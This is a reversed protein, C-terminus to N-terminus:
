STRHRPPERSRRQLAECSVLLALSWGRGEDGERANGVGGLDHRECHPRDVCPRDELQSLSARFSALRTRNRARRLSLRIAVFRKRENALSQRATVSGNAAGDVTGPALVGGSLLSVHAPDGCEDEHQHRHGGCRRKRESRGGMVAADCPSAASEAGHLALSNPRSAGLPAERRNVHASPLLSTERRSTSRSPRPSRRTRM